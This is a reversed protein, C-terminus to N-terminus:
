ILNLETNLFAVVSYKSGSASETCCAMGGNIM